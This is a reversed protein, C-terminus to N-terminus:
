IDLLLSNNRLWARPERYAPLIGAVEAWFRPSHNLEKLHCLEHVVVYDLVEAPALILRWNFNLAGGASCSGWRRKQERVRVTRPQVALRPLYAQVRAAVVEAAHERLWGVVLARVREGAPVLGDEHPTCVLMGEADLSVAPRAAGPQVRLTVEGGRLPVRSGSEWSVVPARARAQDLKATTALIWDAKQLLFRRLGDVDVRAPSHVLLGERPDIEIAITRRRASRRLRYSLTREGLQIQADM